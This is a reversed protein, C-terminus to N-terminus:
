GGDVPDVQVRMRIYRGPHHPTQTTFTQGAYRYDVRYGVVHQRQEYHNVTACREVDRSAYAPEAHKPRSLSHGIAAGALAGAVTYPVRGRRRGLNSGIVGGILGGALTAGASPRPRTVHAAPDTWCENVPRAVQVPQYLPEVRTVEAMDGYVLGADRSPATSCAAVALGPIVALLRKMMCARIATPRLACIRVGLFERTKCKAYPTNGSHLSFPVVLLSAGRRRHQEQSCGKLKIAVTNSYNTPVESLLISQAVRFDRM